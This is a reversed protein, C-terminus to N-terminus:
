RAGVGGIDHAVADLADALTSAVLGVEERTIVLPPSIAVGDGLPRVFVGRERAQGFVRAPLDPHTSLVEPRFAVAGMAGIGARIGGVLEHGDLSGLALAIEQELELGRALLGERELIDINALAVACATPHGAYTQGHRFVNGGEDWFPAAIRGDIVVGGLPVYGSTVGKAFAIMDPRVGFRAPGFWEGLRGFANIVCDAVFLIGTRECLAAVGELYGPQPQHVGGAGIVPEVFIAAVTDPGVREVEAELAALDDHPVHTTHDDDLPGMGARNAAIGGIATGHGHTGHFAHTRGILHVREPQGVLHFYRRALKAATEIADGGGSTLFVKADDAPALEALRECLEIAPRNSFAGFASYSALKTMQAAAVDALERRGHGVNVCWLSATADLYRKDQEDWIWVGEGRDIVMEADRVAHMDAFPHWFRTPTMDIRYDKDGPGNM